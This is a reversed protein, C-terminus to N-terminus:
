KIFLVLILFEEDKKLVVQTMNSNTKNQKTNNLQNFSKM